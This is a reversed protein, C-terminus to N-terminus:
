QLEEARRGVARNCEEDGDTWDEDSGSYPGHDDKSLVRGGGEM